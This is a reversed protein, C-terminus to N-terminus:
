KKKLFSNSLENEIQRSIKILDFNNEFYQVNKKGLEDKKRPDLVCVSKICQSISNENSEAIYAGGANILVQKGDGSIVGIIPKGFYLYQILKNPITKGAYGNDKLSVILADCNKYYRSAEDVPKPGHIHIRSTLKLETVLQRINESESGMGIIHLGVDFDTSLISISKILLDILQIKGINGAYVINYKHKFIIPELIKKPILAPQPIFKFNKDKLFLVNHFYDKFSPSSVIIEDCKRYLSQSWKYLMKYVFSDKKVAGTTVTSEPWLDLCYLVHPIHHKKAYVIAPAISIVPSLSVSLVVDFESDIHRAFRKANFYFSLYNRYISIKSEKRPYLNVRYVDVGDIQEFKIKKYSPIIEGYGYNPKGTIVSVEHGFSKLTSAIDSITFKEPYYFQSVILIKM